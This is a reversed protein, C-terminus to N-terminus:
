FLLYNLSTVINGYFPKLPNHYVLMCVVLVVAIIKANFSNFQQIVESSSSGRKTAVATEENEKM